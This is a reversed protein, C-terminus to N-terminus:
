TFIVKVKGFYNAWKEFTEKWVRAFDKGHYSSVEKMFIIHWKKYCEHCIYPFNEGYASVGMPHLPFGNHILDILVDCKACNAFHKRKKSM